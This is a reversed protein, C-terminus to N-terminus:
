RAASTDEGTLLTFDKRGRDLRASASDVVMQWLVPQASLRSRMRDIDVQSIGHRDYLVDYWISGLSDRKVGAFDQLSAEILMADVLVDVEDEYIAVAPEAENCALWACAATLLILNATRM